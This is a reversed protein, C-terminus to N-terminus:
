ASKLSCNPILARSLRGLKKMVGAWLLAQRFSAPESCLRLALTRYTAFAVSVPVPGPCAQWCWACSRGASRCRRRPGSSCPGQLAGIWALFDIAEVNEGLRAGIARRRGGVVRHRRGLCVTAVQRYTRELGYFLSVRLLLCTRHHYSRTPDYPRRGLKAVHQRYARSLSRALHRGDNRRFNWLRRM